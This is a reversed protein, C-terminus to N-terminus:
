FVWMLVGQTATQNLGSIGYKNRWLGWELGVLLKDPRGSFNGIDLKITPQSVIQHECQGHSGIYDVFGDFRFRARSIHFPLSWSPTIQYTTTNCGNGQSGMRGHDIYAYTGLSFFQFGPIKLDFTLGPLFVFPAAGTNKTGANFGATILVDKLVPRLTFDAGTVKSISASPYWEGYVESANQDKSNSKLYDVFFYSSGWRWSSSNELTGTGKTVGGSVGPERFSDGWLLQMDWSSFGNDSAGQAARAPPPIDKNYSSSTLDFSPAHEHQNVDSTIPAKKAFASQGAFSFTVLLALTTIHRIKHM